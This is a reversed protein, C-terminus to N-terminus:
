LMSRLPYNRKKNLYNSLSSLSSSISSDGNLIKSAKNKLCTVNKIYLNKNSMKTTYENTVDNLSRNSYKVKEPCTVSTDM